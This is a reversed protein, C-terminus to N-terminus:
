RHALRGKNRPKYKADVKPSPRKPPPTISGILGVIWECDRLTDTLGAEMALTIRLTKHVRCFNYHVAGPRPRASRDM